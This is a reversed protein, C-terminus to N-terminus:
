RKPLQKYRDQAVCYRAYEVAIDMPSHSKDHLQEVMYPNYKMVQNLIKFQENCLIFMKIQYVNADPNLCLVSNLGQVNALLKINFYKSDFQLFPNFTIRSSSMIDPSLRVRKLETEELSQKHSNVEIRMLEIFQEKTM